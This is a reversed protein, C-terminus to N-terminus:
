LNLIVLKLHQEATKQDQGRPATLANSSQVTVKLEACVFVKFRQYDPLYSLMWRDTLWMM